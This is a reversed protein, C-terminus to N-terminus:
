ASNAALWSELEQLSLAGTKEAIVEGDRFLKLAPISRVGYRQVLEPAEDANVFAVQFDDSTREAALHELVPKMARCPGCWSAWFDVLVTGRRELVEGAFTRDDLTLYLTTAM